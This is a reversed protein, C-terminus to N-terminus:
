PRKAARGNDHARLWAEVSAVEAPANGLHQYGDRAERALALARTQRAPPGWLARALAFKAEDAYASRDDGFLAGAKELERAAEDSRALGALSEGLLTRGMAEYLPNSGATRWLALAREAAGRAEDYRHLANLTEAENFFTLGVMPHEAGIIKTNLDVSRRYYVLAEDYHKLDFLLVGIGNLVKAYDESGLGQTKEILALARQFTELAAQGNGEKGYVRALASLRWSELVPHPRRMGQLLAGAVDIWTHADAINATRDAEFHGLFIAAEAAVEEDRSATGVLFARRCDRLAEDTSMCEGGSRAVEVLSEAELDLYAIKEAEAALQRGAAAAAACQGSDGLAKVRALDGKLVDVRARAAPDDPPPVVARLLQVDACRDLPPLASSALVANDVVTPTAAAFVDALAKVRGLRDGLCTMRLDLVEASQEGRVQTAECADGYMGLWRGAYDDIVRAARGWTDAAHAAGTKLFAAGIADRRPHPGPSGETEWVEALRKPGGRCVSSRPASARLAFAGGLIVAAAAGGALWLNRRRAPDRSLAATLAPMSPWRAAPDVSLGRLVIRRLWPPVASKAPPPQVRGETVAAMLQGLGAGAFPLTAYLAQYLAVCFSFQDTRADTRDARFQEPAMYLPTGLLEGTRTLTPASDDAGGGSLALDGAATLPAAPEPAEDISRALGFDMVRVDGDRGVMVNQPKFDRHVLGAAHAAGLGRGAAIFVTLIEARARPREALWAGLTLGDVHEMALFVRDDITGADHVVVVNPHRLKAIAKAERLLRSRGRADGGGGAHLIKLAIKRDLEPDYAAYVEGMGGRGLLELVTYRGIATGRALPTFPAPGSPSPAPAAAGPEAPAGARSMPAAAVALALRERCSACTRVHAETAAVGDPTIRAEVFAVITDVDLCGV